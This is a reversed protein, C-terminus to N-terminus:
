RRRISFRTLLELSIALNPDLFNWLSIAALNSEKKKAILDLRRLINTPKSLERCNLIFDSLNSVVKQELAKEVVFDFKEFEKEPLNDIV